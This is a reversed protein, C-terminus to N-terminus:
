KSHGRNVMVEGDSGFFHVGFGKERRIVTIGNSYVLAAESDSSDFRSLDATMWELDGNHLTWTTPEGTASGEQETNETLVGTQIIIM